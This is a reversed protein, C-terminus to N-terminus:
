FAVLARATFGDDELRAKNPVAARDEFEHHRYEGILKLNQSVLYHLGAVMAWERPESKTIGSVGLVTSATDDFHNGRIWDYRDYLVAKNSIRWNVQHFGGNWKFEKGFGTPDSERNYMYQNQITIPFGLPALNLTLDPGIRLMGNGAWRGSLIGGNGIFIDGRLTDDYTDSSHYAFVGVSQSFYRAVFRGYFDKANNNDNHDNSGNSVGLHYEIWFTNRKSIETVDKGPALIGNVEFFVQPKSLRFLYGSEDESLLNDEHDPTVIRPSILDLARREYVLYQNVSLRVKGSSAALPPHSIGFLLNVSDRPTGPILNNWWFKAVEFIEKEHKFKINRVASIDNAEAPGTPTYEWAENFYMPFEVFVSLHRGVPSSIFVSADSLALTSGTREAASGDAAERRERRLDAGFGTLISFPSTRPIALSGGAIDIDNEAPTLDKGNIARYGSMKFSAGTGNLAGWTSHCVSCSLNYRRSYSTVARGEDSLVTFCVACVFVFLIRKKGIM